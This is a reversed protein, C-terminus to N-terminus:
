KPPWSSLSHLHRILRHVRSHPHDPLKADYKEDESISRLLETRLNPDYLDTALCGIYPVFYRTRPFWGPLRASIGYLGVGGVAKGEHRVDGTEVIVDQFRRLLDIAGIHNQLELEVCMGAM